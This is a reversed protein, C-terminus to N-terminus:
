LFKREHYFEMNSIVLVMELMQKVISYPGDM